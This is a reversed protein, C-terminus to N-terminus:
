NYFNGPSAGDTLVASRDMLPAGPMSLQGVAARLDKAAEGRWVLASIRIRIAEWTGSAQLLNHLVVDTRELLPPTGHM